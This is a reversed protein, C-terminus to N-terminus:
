EEEKDKKELEKMEIYVGDSNPREESQNPDKSKGEERLEHGISYSLITGM